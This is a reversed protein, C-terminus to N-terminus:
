KVVAKVSLQEQAPKIDGQLDEIFHLKIDYMDKHGKYSFDQHWHAVIAEKHNQGPLLESRPLKKEDYLTIDTMIQDNSIQTRMGTLLFITNSEHFAIQVPAFTFIPFSTEAEKGTEKTQAEERIPLEILKKGKSVGPSVLYSTTKGKADHKNFVTITIKKSTQNNIETIIFTPKNNKHNVASCSTATIILLLAFLIRKPM